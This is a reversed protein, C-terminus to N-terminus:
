RVTAAVIDRAARVPDAAGTVPRGVVIRDAGWALAQRPTAARAHENVAAGVPRVGPTVLVAGEGVAARVAGLDTPACVVGDAGAGVALRALRPVHESADPVGLGALDVESLSTLVTVALVLPRAAADGVGARAAAVMEPGGSAHVTLGWVGLPRLTAAARQVTTPIDHLKLDLFVQGHPAIRRVADPGHAAFLELGVKFGGVVGALRHALAEADGLDAVDLAVLLPNPRGSAPGTM